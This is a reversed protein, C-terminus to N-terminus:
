TYLKIFLEVQKKAHEDLDPFSPPVHLLEEYHPRGQMLAFFTSSARKVDQCILKEAQIMKELYAEFRNHSEVIATTYFLQPLEGGLRCENMVTRYIKVGEESYIISMFGKAISSLDTQLDEGTLGAYLEKSLHGDLKKLVMQVFLDRKSGFHKYLTAKSVEAESAIDDMTTADFGQSLFLTGAANLMAKAKEESKKPGRKRGSPNCPISDENVKVM